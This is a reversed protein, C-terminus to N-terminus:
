SDTITFDVTASIQGDVYPAERSVSMLVADHPDLTDIALTGVTGLAANLAGWATASALLIKGSLKHPQRGALDLTFEDGGPIEQMAARAERQESYGERDITFSVSAASSIFSGNVAVM